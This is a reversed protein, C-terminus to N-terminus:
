LSIASQGAITLMPITAADFGAIAMGGPTDEFVAHSFNLVAINPIRKDQGSQLDSYKAVKRVQQM